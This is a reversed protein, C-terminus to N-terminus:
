HAAGGSVCFQRRNQFLELCGAGVCQQNGEARGSLIEPNGAVALRKFFTAYHYCDADAAREVIERSPHSASRSQDAPDSELPEIAQNTLRPAPAPLQREWVEGQQYKGLAEEPFAVRGDIVM